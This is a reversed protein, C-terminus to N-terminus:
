KYYDVQDSVYVGKPIRDMELPAHHTSDCHKWYYELFYRIPPDVRAVLVHIPEHNYQNIWLSAHWTRNKHHFRIDGGPWFQKDVQKLLVWDGDPQFLYKGTIINENVVLPTSSLPKDIRMRALRPANKRFYGVIDPMKSVLASGISMFDM